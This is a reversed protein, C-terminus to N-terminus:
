FFMKKKIEITINKIRTFYWILRYIPRYFYKWDHYMDIIKDHDIGSFSVFFLHLERQPTVALTVCDDRGVPIIFDFVLSFKIALSLLPTLLSWSSLCFCSFLPLSNKELRTFQQELCDLISITGSLIKLFFIFHKSYFLSLKQLRSHHISGTIIKKKKM